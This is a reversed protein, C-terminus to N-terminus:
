ARTLDLAILSMQRQNQLPLLYNTRKREERIRNERKVVVFLKGETMTFIRHLHGILESSQAQSTVTHGLTVTSLLSANGLDQHSDERLLHLCPGSKEKLLQFNM